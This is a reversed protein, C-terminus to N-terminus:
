RLVPEGLALYMFAGPQDLNIVKSSVAETTM